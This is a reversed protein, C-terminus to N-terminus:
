LDYYSIRLLCYCFYINFDSKILSIYPKNEKNLQIVNGVVSQNQVNFVFCFLFFFFFLYCFKVDYRTGFMRHLNLQRFM